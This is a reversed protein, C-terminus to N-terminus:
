VKRTTRPIVWCSDHQTMGIHPYYKEAAPASLLILMTDLGAAGHTRRILERGIGRRQYDKAVALDSLYTCYSFDSIARSVGVLRHDATRATVIIDARRLMQEIRVPEDVPRRQALTSLRLLEIFDAAPLRPELSYNIENMAAVM